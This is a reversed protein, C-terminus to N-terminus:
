FGLQNRRRRQDLLNGCNASNAPVFGSAQMGAHSHALILSSEHHAALQGGVLTVAQSLPVPILWRAALSCSNALAPKPFPISWRLSNALALNPFPM